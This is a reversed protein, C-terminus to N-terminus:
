RVDEILEHAAKDAEALPRSAAIVVVDEKGTSRDLEFWQGAPPLRTSAGPEIKLDGKPPFLVASTGDAFFQVVYVYAPVDSDLLLELRDGSHLTEGPAVARKVGNVLAAVRLSLNITAAPADSVVKLARPKQAGALTGWCLLTALVLRKM